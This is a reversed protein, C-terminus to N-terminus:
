GLIRFELDWVGLGWPSDSEKLPDSLKMSAHSLTDSRLQAMIRM